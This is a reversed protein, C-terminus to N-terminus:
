KVAGCVYRLSRGLVPEVVEMRGTAFPASVKQSSLIRYDGDAANAYVEVLLWPKRGFPAVLVTRVKFKGMERWSGGLADREVVVPVVTDDGQYHLACSVLPAAWGWLPVMYLMFLRFAISM